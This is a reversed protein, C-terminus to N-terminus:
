NLEGEMVRRLQRERMVVAHVVSYLVYCMVVSSSREGGSVYQTVEACVKLYIHRLLRPGRNCEARAKIMTGPLKEPLVVM